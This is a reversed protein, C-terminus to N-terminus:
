GIFKEFGKAYKSPFFDIISYTAISNKYFPDKQIIQQVAELNKLLCIIIGGDRPNKRGSCLFINKKM